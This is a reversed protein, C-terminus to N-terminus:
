AKDIREQAYDCYKKSQEIGIFNRGLLKCAVGTTGIGMFPDLVTDGEKTFTEIVRKTLELSTFGPNVSHLHPEKFLYEEGPLRIDDWLDATKILPKATSLITHYQISYGHSVVGKAKKHIITMHLNGDYSYRIRKEMDFVLSSPIYMAINNHSLGLSQTIASTMYAGYNITALDDTYGDYKKGVNYPPDLFVFDVYNGMKWLTGVADGNIIETTM